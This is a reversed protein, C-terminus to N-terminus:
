NGPHIGAIRIQPHRSRLGLILADNGAVSHQHQKLNGLTKWGKNANAGVPMFESFDVDPTEVGCFSMLFIRADVPLGLALLRDIMVRRACCSTMISRQTDSSADNEHDLLFVVLKTETIEPVRNIVEKFDKPTSANGLEIWRVREPLHEPKPAPYVLTVLSGYNDLVRSLELGVDM